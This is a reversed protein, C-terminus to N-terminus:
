AGVDEDPGASWVQAEPVRSAIRRADEPSALTLATSLADAITASPHRVAVSRWYRPSLGTRPDLIHAVGGEASFVLADGSSVALAASSLALRRGVERWEIEFASGDDRSGLARVEGLDILVNRYGRRALLEAIRDTIYGQAIGNLTLETGEAMRVADGVVDVRTMGIRGLLEARAADCAAMAGNGDRCREAYARWLPQITPDFLSDTLAHLRHCARLLQRLEPSAGSLFGQRNLRVIESSSRYLSFIEELRDAEALCEALVARAAKQDSGALVIRADAGLATGRWEVEAAAGRGVFASAGAAALIVLARRRTLLTESM